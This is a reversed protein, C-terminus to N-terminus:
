LCPGTPQPSRARWPHQHERLNSAVANVKGLQRYGTQWRQSGPCEPRDRFKVKRGRIEEQSPRQERRSPKQRANLNVRTGLSIEVKGMLSSGQWTSEKFVDTGAKRAEGKQSAALGPVSATPGKSALEWQPM